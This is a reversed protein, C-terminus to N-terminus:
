KAQADSIERTRALRGLDDVPRRNRAGGPQPRAANSGDERGDGRPPFIRSGPPDTLSALNVTMVAPAQSM